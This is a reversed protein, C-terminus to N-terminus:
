TQFWRRKYHKTFRGVCFFSESQIIRIRDTVTSQDVDLLKALEKESINELEHLILTRRWAIPLEKLLRLLYEIKQDDWEDVDPAVSKDDAVVDEIRLLEDPQWFEYFEEGVMDEAQDAPDIPAQAELSIIEGFTRSARVEKDLVM